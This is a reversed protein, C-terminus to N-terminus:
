ILHSPRSSTHGVTQAAAPLQSMARRQYSSPTNASAVQQGSEVLRLLTNTVATMNPRLRPDEEWCRRMLKHYDAPFGASRLGVESPITPRRQPRVVEAFFNTPHLNLFGEYEFPLQRTILEWLVVGHEALMRYICGPAPGIPCSLGFSYVDCSANYSGGWVEPAMWLITGVQTTMTVETDENQISQHRVHVSDTAKADEGSPKTREIGMEEILRATGLDAVKCVYNSTVLLNPSKIDRHIQPPRLRHLFRLGRAADTALSLCLDVPLDEKVDVLLSRLSGRECFETVLFPRQDPDEGAGYFLVINRHRTRQLLRVERDFDSTISRNWIRMEVLATHMKKVAVLEGGWQARYVEAFTGKDLLRFNRLQAHDIAWTRKYDGVENQLDEIRSYALESRAHFLRVRRQMATIAVGVILAALIAAVMILATSPLECRDSLQFAFRCNCTANGNIVNCQGHHHCVSDDCTNCAAASTSGEHLTTVDAPCKLCETSGHLNAYTGRACPQCTDSAFSGAFHGPPCGLMMISSDELYSTADAGATLLITANSASMMTMSSEVRATMNGAVVSVSQFSRSLINFTVVRDDFCVLESRSLSSPVQVGGSMLAGFGAVVQLRYPLVTHASFVRRALNNYNSACADHMTAPPVRRLLADTTNEIRTWNYHILNLLWADECVASDNRGGALLLVPALNQYPDMLIGGFHGWRAAAGGSAAPVRVWHLDALPASPNQTKTFRLLYIAETPGALAKGQAVVFGVSEVYDCVSSAVAPAGAAQSINIWQMATHNFLWTDSLYVWSGNRLSYVGGHLLMLDDDIAVANTHARASPGVSDEWVSGAYRRVYLTVESAPYLECAYIEALSAGTMTREGGFVYPDNNLTFAISNVIGRRTCVFTTLNLVLAQNSIGLNNDELPKRVLGGVMVMTDFYKTVAAANFAWMTHNGDSDDGTPGMFGGYVLLLETSSANFQWVDGFCQFVQSVSTHAESLVLGGHLLMSQWSVFCTVCVSAVGRVGLPSSLRKQPVRKLPVPDYSDYVEFHKDAKSPHPLRLKAGVFIPIIALQERQHLRMVTLLESAVPDHGKSSGMLAVAKESLMVVVAEPMDEPPQIDEGEDDESLDNAMAEEGVSSEQSSVDHPPEPVERALVPSGHDSLTRPKAPKPPPPPPAPRRAEGGTPKFSPKAPPPPPPTQHHAQHQVQPPPPPPPMRRPRAQPPPELPAEGSGEGDEGEEAVDHLLPHAKSMSPVDDDQEMKIGRRLTIIQGDVKLEIPQEICAKLFHPLGAYQQDKFRITGDPQTTLTIHVPVQQLYWVCAILVRRVISLMHVGEKINKIPRIGHYWPCQDLDEHFVFLAAAQDLDLSAASSRMGLTSMFHTFPAQISNTSSTRSVNKSLSGDTSARPRSSWDHLQVMLSPLLQCCRLQCLALCVNAVIGAIIRVLLRWRSCLWIRNTFRASRLLDQLNGDPVLPMVIINHTKNMVIGILSLINKHKLNKM